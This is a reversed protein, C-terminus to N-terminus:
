NSDVLLNGDVDTYIAVPTVGDASSAAFWGTTNNEDKTGRDGGNDSGTSADLVKLAHTSPDAKVKTPTKGDTNLTALIGRSGNQDIPANSM